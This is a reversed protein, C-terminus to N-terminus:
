ITVYSTYLDLSPHHLKIGSLQQLTSLHRLSCVLESSHVLSIRSTHGKILPVLYGKFFVPMSTQQFFSYHTPQLHCCTVYLSHMKLLSTTGMNCPKIHKNLSSVHLQKNSSWRWSVGYYSTSKNVEWCISINSFNGSRSFLFIHSNSSM